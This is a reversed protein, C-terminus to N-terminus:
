LKKELWIRYEEITEVPDVKIIQFGNGLAFALMSKLKNRTKFRIATYGNSRAWNEQNQALQLAIGKKRHTPIVGGMWSYFSSDADREYGAKFGVAQNKDFAILILHPCSAFRQEYEIELYPSSLEPVKRSVAVAQAITGPKITIM